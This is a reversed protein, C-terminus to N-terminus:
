LQSYMEGKWVAFYSYMAATLYTPSNVSDRDVIQASSYSTCSNWCRRLAPSSYSTTALPNKVGLAPLIKLSTKGPRPEAAAAPATVRVYEYCM